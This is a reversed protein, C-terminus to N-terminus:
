AQFIFITNHSFFRLSCHREQMSHGVLALKNNTSSDRGEKAIAVDKNSSYLLFDVLLKHILTRICRENKVKMHEGGSKGLLCEKAIM